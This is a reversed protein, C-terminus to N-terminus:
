RQGTTAPDAAGPDFEGTTTHAVAGGANAARWRQLREAPLVCLDVAHPADNSAERELMQFTSHIKQRKIEVAHGAEQNRNLQQEARTFETQYGALTAASRETDCKLRARYTGFYTGSAFGLSAALFSALLLRLLAIM